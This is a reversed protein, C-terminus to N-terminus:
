LGDVSLTANGIEYTASPDLYFLVQDGELDTAKLPYQLFGSVHHWVFKLNFWLLDTSSCLPSVNPDGEM